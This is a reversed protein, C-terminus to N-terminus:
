SWSLVGYHGFRQWVEKTLGACMSWQRWSLSEIEMSFDVQLIRMRMAMLATVWGVQSHCVGLNQWLEQHKKVGVLLAIPVCTSPVRAVCVM